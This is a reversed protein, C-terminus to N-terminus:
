SCKVLIFMGYFRVQPMTTPMRLNQCLIYAFITCRFGNLDGDAGDGYSHSAAGTQSVGASGHSRRDGHDASPVNGGHRVTTSKLSQMAMREDEDPSQEDFSPEVAEVVFEYPIFISM